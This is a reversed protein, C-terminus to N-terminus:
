DEPQGKQRSFRSGQISFSIGAGKKILKMINM